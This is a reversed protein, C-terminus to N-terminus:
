FREFEDDLNSTGDLKITVGPKGNPRDRAVGNHGNGNGNGNRANGNSGNRATAHGNSVPKTVRAGNPTAPAGRAATRDPARRAPAPKTATRPDPRRPAEDRTVEATRFFGIAEVLQDSQGALQETTSSMEEATSANQQIVKELQQLAQNIQEAGTDQERSAATIEEVLEATRQIDPVLRDLM